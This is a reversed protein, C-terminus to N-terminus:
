WVCRSNKNTNDTHPWFHNLKGLKIKERYRRAHLFVIVREEM